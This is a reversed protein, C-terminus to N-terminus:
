GVISSILQAILGSVLMLPKKTNKQVDCLIDLMQINM